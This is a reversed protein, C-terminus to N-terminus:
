HMFRGDRTYIALDVMALGTHDGPQYKARMGNLDIVGAKTLGQVFSARTPEPGALRLAAVLAKATMYGELSGYSFDKGPNHKAFVERYERAIETKREMPNPVVQAFIMGHALPGLKQALQASGSNVAWFNAKVGQNRAKRILQEYMGASGHNIVVQAGSKGVAQAMAELQTESIDSKFPLDAVLEISLEKCLIRVNELHQLGTESDSRVFAARTMGNSRAQALLARFEERHESRVPFVMPQHPRRFTPSGAMPGFFPVKLDVAAKMVATSPGGEISGFLIFVRDQEVLARANAEAQAPKNDDDLTKLVLQRGHVGGQENVVKLYTTIGDQVATGYANRGNQLTISQGILLRGKAVGDAQAWSLGTALGLGVLLATRRGLSIWDRAKGM